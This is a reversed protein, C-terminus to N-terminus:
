LSELQQRQRTLDTHIRGITLHDGRLVAAITRVQLLTSIGTRQATLLLDERDGEVLRATDVRLRLTTAAGGSLWRQLCETVIVDGTLRHGDLIAAETGIDGVAGRIGGQALTINRLRQGVRTGILQKRLTAGLFGGV